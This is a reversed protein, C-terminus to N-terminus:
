GGKEGKERAAAVAAAAEERERKAEEYRREEKAKELAAKREERRKIEEPVTLREALPRSDADEAKALMEGTEKEAEAIMGAARKHSVAHHKNANARTKTGGASINGAKKM